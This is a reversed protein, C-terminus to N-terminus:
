DEADDLWEIEVIGDHLIGVQELRLIVSGYTPLLDNYGGKMNPNQSWYIYHDDHVGQEEFGEDFRKILIYWGAFKGKLIRGKVGVKVM